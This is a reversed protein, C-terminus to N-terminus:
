AREARRVVGALWRALEARAAPSPAAPRIDTYFGPGARGLMRFRKGHLTTIDHQFIAIATGGGERPALHLIFHASYLQGDQPWHYDIDPHIRVDHTRQAEPLALWPALWAADRSGLLLGDDAFFPDGRVETGRYRRHLPDGAPLAAVAAVIAQRAQAPPLATTVDPPPLAPAARVGAALVLAAAACWGKPWAVHMM